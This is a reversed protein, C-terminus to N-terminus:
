LLLMFMEVAFDREAGFRAWKSVPNGVLQDLNDLFNTQFLYVHSMYGTM